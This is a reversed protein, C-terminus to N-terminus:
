MVRQQKSSADQAPRERDKFRMRNVDAIFRGPSKVGPLSSRVVADCCLLRAQANAPGPLLIDVEVASSAPPPALCETRALEVELWNRSIARAIGLWKHGQHGALRVECPLNVDARIKTEDRMLLELKPGIARQSLTATHCYKISFLRNLEVGSPGALGDPRAGNHVPLVLFTGTKGPKRSSPL